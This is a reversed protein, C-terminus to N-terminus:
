TTYITPLLLVLHYWVKFTPIFKQKLVTTSDKWSRGELLSMGVYVCVHRIELWCEMDPFVCGSMGRGRRVCVGEGLYFGSIFFPGVAFVDLIIKKAIHSRTKLPFWKDLRQYWYHAPICLSVSVAVIRGSRGWDTSKSKEIIRQCINDGCLDICGGMLVNTVLLYKTFPASSTISKLHRSLVAQFVM